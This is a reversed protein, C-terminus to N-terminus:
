ASPKAAPGHVQHQDVHRRAFEPPSDSKRLAVQRDHGPIAGRLQRGRAPEHRQRGFPQSLLRRRVQGIEVQQDDLDVAQMNAVVQYQDRGEADFAVAILM